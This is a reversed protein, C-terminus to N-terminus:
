NISCGKYLYKYQVEINRCGRICFSKRKRTKAREAKTGEEALVAIHIDIGASVDVVELVDARRVARPSVIHDVGGSGERARLDARHLAADERASLRSEGDNFGVLGRECPIEDIAFAIDEVGEFAAFFM